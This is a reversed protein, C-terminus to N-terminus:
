WPTVGRVAATLTDRRQLYVEEIATFAKHADISRAKSSSRQFEVDAILYDELLNLTKSKGTEKLKGRIELKGLDNEGEFGTVLQLLNTALQKLRGDEPRRANFYLGITESNGVQRQAELASYLGKDAKQVLAVNDAPIELELFRVSAMQNILDAVDREFLRQFRPTSPLNRGKFMLYEGLKRIRPADRNFEAAVFGDAFIVIHSVDILGADEAISLTKKVGGREIAPLNDRRTRGFEIRLPYEFSHPLVSLLSDDSADSQYRGQEIWPLADV